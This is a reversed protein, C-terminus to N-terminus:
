MYPVFPITILVLVGHGLMIAMHKHHKKEAYAYAAGTLGLVLAYPIIFPNYFTNVSEKVGLFLYPIAAYPYGLFFGTLSYGIMYKRFILLLLGIPLALITIGGFSYSLQVISEVMGEM